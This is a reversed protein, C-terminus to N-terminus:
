TRPKRTPPRRGGPSPRGKTLPDLTKVSKASEILAEKVRKQEIPGVKRAGPADKGITRHFIHNVLKQIASYARKFFSTVSSLFDGSIRMILEM